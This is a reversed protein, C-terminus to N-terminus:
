LVFHVFAINTQQSATSTKPEGCEGCTKYKPSSFLSLRIFSSTTVSDNPELIFNLHESRSMKRLENMQAICQGGQKQEM